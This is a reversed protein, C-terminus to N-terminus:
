TILSEVIEDLLREVRQHIGERKLYVIPNPTILVPLDPFGLSRLLQKARIEFIDTVIATAPIGRKEFEVCAHISWM